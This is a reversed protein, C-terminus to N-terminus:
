WNKRLKHTFEGKVRKKISQLADNIFNYILVARPASETAFTLTIKNLRKLKKQKGMELGEFIRIIYFKVRKSLEERM